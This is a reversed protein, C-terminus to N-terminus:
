SRKAQQFPSAVFWGIAEADDGDEATLDMVKAVRLIHQLPKWVQKWLRSLTCYLEHQM